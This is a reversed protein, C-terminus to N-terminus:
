VASRAWQRAGRHVDRWRVSLLRETRAGPGIKM